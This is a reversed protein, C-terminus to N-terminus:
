GAASSVRRSAIVYAFESSVGSVDLGNGVVGDVLARIVGARNLIAGTARHIESVLRDLRVIQRDMLVVSVKSWAEVHILPRGRRPELWSGCTIHTQSGHGIIVITALVLEASQPIRISM